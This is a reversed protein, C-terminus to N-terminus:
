YHMFCSSHVINPQPNIVEPKITMFQAAAASQAAIGVIATESWTDTM